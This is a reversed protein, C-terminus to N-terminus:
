TERSVFLALAENEKVRMTASELETKDSFGILHLVGHAIVRRLEVHFMEDLEVSNDLVRDTSIFLDGSVMLGECYDFTIIDTYYDHNLHEKNLELLYEDSCMVLTVPGLVKDESLCIDALWLGFFEPNLDLTETEEFHISVM